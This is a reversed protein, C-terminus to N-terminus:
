YIYTEVLHQFEDTLSPKLFTNTKMCVNWIFEYEMRKRRVQLAKSKDYEFHILLILIGVIQLQCEVLTVLRYGSSKLTKITTVYSSVLKPCEKNKWLIKMYYEYVPIAM